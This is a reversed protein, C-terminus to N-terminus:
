IALGRWRRFARWSRWARCRGSGSPGAPLVCGESGLPLFDLLSPGPSPYVVCDSLVALPYRGRAKVTNVMRRHMNVRARSIVAARIDPRWTWRELVPWREGDCYRRGQPRAPGPPVVRQFLEWLGDPVLREVMTLVATLSVIM